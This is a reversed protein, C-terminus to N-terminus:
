MAQPDGLNEELIENQKAPKQTHTHGNVVQRKNGTHM